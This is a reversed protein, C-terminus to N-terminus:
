CEASSPPAALGGGGSTCPLVVLSKQVWFFCGYVEVEKHGSCFNGLSVAPLPPTRTSDTPVRSPITTCLGPAAPQLIGPLLWGLGTGTHILLEWYTKVFELKNGAGIGAGAPTPPLSVQEETKFETLNGELNTGFVQRSKM